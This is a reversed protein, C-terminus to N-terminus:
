RTKRLAEAQGGTELGHIDRDKIPNDGVPEVGATDHQQLRNACAAVAM